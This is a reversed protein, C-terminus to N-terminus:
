IYEQDPDSASDYLCFSANGVGCIVINKILIVLRTSRAMGLQGFTRIFASLQSKAHLNKLKKHLALLTSRGSYHGCVGIRSFGSINFGMIKSFNLLTKAKIILSWSYLSFLTHMRPFLSM